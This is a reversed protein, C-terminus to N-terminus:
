PGDPLPIFETEGPVVLDFRNRQWDAKAQEIREPRSSVFNWWIHRQGVPAGGLLVLRARSQATIDLPRGSGFVLLQGSTFAVGEIEVVGDLLYAAREEYATDVTVRADAALNVDTFFLPSHTQVPSKQGFVSGAVVRARVGDGDITPLSAAGYHTFAPATEEAAEPLAVWLQLGYVEQPKQRLLPDSRESHVIGRGATMWNVDGPNIPQISGVSDRHMISGKLLYTVTSLGIHPHPRVDIGQGVGFQAPGMQDLFIFPGVMRRRVSPLVRRVEFGGLDRPRPVVITEVPKCRESDRAQPDDCPLWSM